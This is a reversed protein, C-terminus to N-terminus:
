RFCPVYGYHIGCPIKHEQAYCIFVDIWDRFWALEFEILDSTIAAPLQEDTDGLRDMTTSREGIQTVNPLLYWLSEEVGLEGRGDCLTENFDDLAHPDVNSKDIILYPGIYVSYQLAM